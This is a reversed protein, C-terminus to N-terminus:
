QVPQNKEGRKRGKAGARCSEAGAFSTSLSGYLYDLSAQLVSSRDLSPSFSISETFNLAPHPLTEPATSPSPPVSTSM